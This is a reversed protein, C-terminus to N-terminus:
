EPPKVLKMKYEYVWNIPEYIIFVRLELRLIIGLFVDFKFINYSKTHINLPLLGSKWKTFCLTFNKFSYFSQYSVDFCM